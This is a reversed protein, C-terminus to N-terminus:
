FNEVFSFILGVNSQLHFTAILKFELLLIRQSCNWWQRAAAQFLLLYQTKKKKLFQASDALYVSLMYGFDFFEKVQPFFGDSM